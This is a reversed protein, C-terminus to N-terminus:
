NSCCIDSCGDRRGWARLVVPASSPSFCILSRKRLEGGNKHINIFCCSFAASLSFLFAARPVLSASTGGQWCTVRRRTPRSVEFTLLPIEQSKTEERMMDTPIGLEVISDDQCISEKESNQFQFLFAAHGRVTDACCAWPQLQTRFSTAPQSM